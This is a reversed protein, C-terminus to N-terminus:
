RQPAPAVVEPMFYDDYGGPVFTAGLTPMDPSDSGTFLFLPLLPSLPESPKATGANLEGFVYDTLVHALEDSNDPRVVEVAFGRGFAYLSLKLTLLPEGM